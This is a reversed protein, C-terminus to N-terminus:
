VMSICGGRVEAKHHILQSHLQVRMRSSIQWEKQLARVPRHSGHKVGHRHAADGLRSRSRTSRALDNLHSQMEHVDCVMRRRPVRSLRVPCGGHFSVKTANRCEDLLANAPM